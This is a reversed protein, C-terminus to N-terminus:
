SKGSFIQKYTDSTGMAAAVAAQQEDPTAMRAIVTSELRVASHVDMAPGASLLYKAARVAYPALAAIEAAIEYARTRVHDQPVVEHVLGYRLATEADLKRGLM